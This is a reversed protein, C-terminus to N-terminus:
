DAQKISNKIKYQTEFYRIVENIASKLNGTQEGVRIMSVLIQPFDNPYMKYADALTTGSNVEFYIGYFVRRVLKNTQQTALIESAENLKVGANLLSGMQRLYFILDRESLVSGFSIRSLNGLLTNKQYIEIPKLGQEQLFKTVMAKSPAETTGSVVKGDRLTRARYKYDYIEM